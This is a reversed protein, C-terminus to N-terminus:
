TFQKTCLLWRKINTEFPIIPLRSAGLAAPAGRVLVAGVVVVLLLAAPALVAVLRALLRGLPPPLLPGQARPLGRQSIPLAACCLSVGVVLAQQHGFGVVGEPPHLVHRELQRRRVRVARPGQGLARELGDGEALLLLPHVDPHGQQVQLVLKTGRLCQLLGKCAGDLEVVWLPHVQPHRLDVALTAGLFLALLEELLGHLLEAAALLHPHGVLLEAQPRPVARARARQQRARELAQGLVLVHRHDGPEGVQLVVVPRCLSSTGNQFPQDTGVGLPKVEPVLIHVSLDLLTVKGLCAGHEFPHDGQTQARVLHLVDELLVEPEFHLMPVLFLGFLHLGLCLLVHARQSLGPLTDSHWPQALSPFPIIYTYQTYRKLSFYYSSPHHLRANKTTTTHTNLHTSFLMFVQQQM